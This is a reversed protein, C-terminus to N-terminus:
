NWKGLEKRFKDMDFKLGPCSKIKQAETKNKAKGTRIFTEWHGLVNQVPINDKVMLGRVVSLATHWQVPDPEVADFKGLICVGYGETNFGVAHAGPKGLDRGFQVFVPNEADPSSSIVEEVGMHYGIDIWPETVQKGEAILKEAQAKTIISDNYRWSTHYKRISGWSVVKGTDTYSHHIIIYKMKSEERKLNGDQDSSTSSLSQQSHNSLIWCRLQKALSVISCLISILRTM